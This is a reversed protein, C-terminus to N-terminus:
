VKGLCGHRVEKQKTNVVKSLQATGTLGKEFLALPLPNANNNNFPPSPSTGM